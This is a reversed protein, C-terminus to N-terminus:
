EKEPMLPYDWTKKKHITTPVTFDGMVGCMKGEKRLKEFFEKPSAKLELLETQSM